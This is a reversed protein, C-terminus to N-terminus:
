KRGTWCSGFPAKAHMKGIAADLEKQAANLANLANFAAEEATQQRTEAAKYEKSAAEVADALEQMSKCGKQEPKMSKGKEKATPRVPFVTDIDFYYPTDQMM